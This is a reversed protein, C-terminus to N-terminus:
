RKRREQERREARNTPAQEDGSVRQGFAGRQAPQEPQPAASAQAQARQARATAAQEIQGRQNRV